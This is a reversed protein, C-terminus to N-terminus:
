AAPPKRALAEIVDGVAVIGALRGDSHMVALVTNDSEQLVQLAPPPDREEGEPEPWTIDGATLVAPDLGAAVIRTVIDHASVIGLPVLTGGAEVTVLLEAAGSSRMLRSTELVSLERDVYPVKPRGMPPHTYSM